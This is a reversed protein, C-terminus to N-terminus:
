EVSGPEGGNADNESESILLLATTRGVTDYLGTPLILYILATTIVFEGVYDLTKLDTDDRVARCDPPSPIQYYDRGANPHTHFTAVIVEGNRRGGPHPPPSIEAESGTPWRDATFGGDAGRCIFGGEEHGGSPGPSSDAWARGLAARVTADRLLERTADVSM